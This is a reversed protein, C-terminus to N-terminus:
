LSLLTLRAINYILTTHDNNLLFTLLAIHYTLTIHNTFTMSKFSVHLLVVTTEPHHHPNSILYWVSQLSVTIDYIM